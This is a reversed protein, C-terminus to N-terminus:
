IEHKAELELQRPGLASPSSVFSVSVAVSSGAPASGQGRSSAQPEVLCLKALEMLERHSFKAPSNELRERLEALTNLGLDKMQKVADVFIDNRVESYHTLLASFAPDTKLTSIYAPTYGTILSVNMEAEGAALLRAAEHHTARLNKLRQQPASASESAALQELDEETISRLVEVELPLAKLGRGRARPLALESLSDILSEM